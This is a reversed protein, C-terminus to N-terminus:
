NSLSWQYGAFQKYYCKRITFIVAFADIIEGVVFSFIITTILIIVIPDKLQRFFIKFIGDVKKKPLENKGYRMLREKAEKSSLGNHNTKLKKLVDEINEQYFNM